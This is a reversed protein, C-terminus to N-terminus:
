KIRLQNLADLLNLSITEAEIVLPLDTLNISQSINETQLISDLEQKLTRILDILETQFVDQNEAVVTEVTKRMVSDFTNLNQRIYALAHQPSASFFVELAHAQLHRDGRGEELIMRAASAAAEKDRVLLETLASTAIFMDEALALGTLEAISLLNYDIEDFTLMLLDDVKTM